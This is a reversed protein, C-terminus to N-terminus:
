RNNQKDHVPPNNTSSFWLYLILSHASEEKPGSENIATKKKGWFNSQKEKTQATYICALLYAEMGVM